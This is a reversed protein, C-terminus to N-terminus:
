THRRLGSPWGHKDGCPPSSGGVVVKFPNREVSQAIAAWSNMSPISGEVLREYSSRELWQAVRVSCLTPNSGM